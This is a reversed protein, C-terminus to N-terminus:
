VGAESAAERAMEIAARNMKIQKLDHTDAGAYTYSNLEHPLDIMFGSNRGSAGWAIRQAELVVIKDKPRLQRHRRAAFLGAFGGGVIIWDAKLDGSLIKPESPLPLLAYWGSTETDRPTRKTVITKL